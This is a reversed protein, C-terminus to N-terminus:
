RPIWAGGIALGMVDKAGADLLVKAAEDLTSGTTIVDDLLLIRKDSLLHVRKPSVSFAGEVNARRQSASLKTQTRTMKSRSLVKDCPIRVQRSLAKALEESQNYGRRWRKFPHLPIAVILDATSLARDSSLVLSLKQAFYGALRQRQEYKFAYVVKDLPYTFRAWARIRSLSLPHKACELCIKSRRSKELPAGCRQCFRQEIAHIKTECEECLPLTRSDRECAICVPPFFFDRVADLVRKMM